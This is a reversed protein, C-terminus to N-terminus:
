SSSTTQLSSRLLPEYSRFAYTTKLGLRKQIEISSLGEQFWYLIISHRFIRPTLQSCGLKSAYHKVLMEVGRPTMPSGLSGFKNFGLFNWASDKSVTKLSQISNFLENSVPVVRPAKGEIKLSFKEEELFFWNEFRLRVVESVLCGTEALTWLLSRNRIEFLSECPLKQISEQLHIASVTLPIREIKHPTAIKQAMEPALKKRKALYSLFQTVTLIKRRRTNSKLGKGSLYNRYNELDQRRIGDLQILKDLYEEQLFRQFSLLDLKYNKITLLSKQTGELYGLFSKIAYAFNRNRQDKIPM